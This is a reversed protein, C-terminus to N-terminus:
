PEDDDMIGRLPEDMALTSPVPVGAGSLLIELRNAMNQMAVAGQNVPDGNVPYPIKYKPTAGPM